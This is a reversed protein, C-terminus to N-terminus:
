EKCRLMVENNAPETIRIAGGGGRGGAAAAISSILRSDDAEAEEAIPCPMDTIGSKSLADVSPAFVCAPAGLLDAHMMSDNKEWCRLRCLPPGPM